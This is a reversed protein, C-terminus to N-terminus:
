VGKAKLLYDRLFNKQDDNGQLQHELIKLDGQSRAQEGGRQLDREQKVGSEQEVFDLNMLDTDSKMQGQKAGETGIKASNLEAMSGHHIGKAQETMVQAELLAIELEAKKQQMPDPEPKFTMIRQALDPMKRLRAIDGLIMKMLGADMTSGTTQLMFALQEAKNNDEEATSISL